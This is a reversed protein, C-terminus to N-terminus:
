PELIRYRKLRNLRSIEQRAKWHKELEKFGNLILIVVIGLFWAVIFMIFMFLCMCIVVSSPRSAFTLVHTKMNQYAVVPAIVYVIILSWFETVWWRTLTFPAPVPWYLRKMSAKGTLFMQWQALFFIVFGLTALAFPFWLTTPM